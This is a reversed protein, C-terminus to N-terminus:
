AVERELLGRELLVQLYEQVTEWPYRAGDGAWETASEATFRRKEVMTKLFPAWEEAVSAERNAFYVYFYNDGDSGTGEACTMPVKRSIRLVEKRHVPRSEAEVPSSSLCAIISEGPDAIMKQWERNFEFSDSDLADLAERLEALRDAFFGKAEAPLAGSKMGPASIPPLHRWDPNSLLMRELVPRVLDLFNRNEFVLFLSLTFDSLAETVHATGPPLYLVDGPELIVETLDEMDVGQIEEWPEIDCSYEGTGNSSLRASARPWPFVPSSSILFRKRGECQIFVVSPPDFHAPWGYGQSSLSALLRVNGPHNLQAKIAAALRAVREDCFNDARINSGETLTAEVQAPPIVPFSPPQGDHFASNHSRHKGAKVEFGAINKDAAQRIARYFDDRQFGGPFLRQLKDPSGKVFLAKRGWYETTFTEPALPALLDGLPGRSDSVEPKVKSARQKKLGLEFEKDTGSIM